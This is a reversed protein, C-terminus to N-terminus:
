RQERFTPEFFKWEDYYVEPLKYPQCQNIARLASEQYTKLYPTAANATAVPATELSGDRRLKVRLVAEPLKLESQASPKKWCREVQTKFMAGWTQSNNAQTVAEKSSKPTSVTQMPSPETARPRQAKFDKFDKFDDLPLTVRTLRWDGAWTFYLNAIGTESPDPHRVTIRFSLPGGSFFAHEVQKVALDRMRKQAASEAAVDVPGTGSPKVSDGRMLRAVAQPTVYGDVMQNIFAPGLMMALGRGLNDQDKATSTLFAINLDGRLNQRVSDWDVRSRLTAEDGNKIGMALDYAAYYPWAVWAMAATFILGAVLNIRRGTKADSCKTVSSVFLLRLTPDDKTQMWDSAGARLSLDAESVRGDEVMERIEHGTYPGYSQGEIYLHWQSVFPDTIKAHLRATM